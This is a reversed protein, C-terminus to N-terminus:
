VPGLYLYHVMKKIFKLAKQIYKTIRIKKKYMTQLFLFLHLFSTLPSSM